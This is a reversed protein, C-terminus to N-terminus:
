AHRWELTYLLFYGLLLAIATYSAVRCIWLEWGGNYELEVECRGYCEPRLWMLGLGDSRIERKHGNVKAHWGPHYSVQVSIVQGPGASTAIRIRNRGQWQFEAIPLSSDDLAAVYAEMGATDGPRTPTRSVIAGQPVVHALSPTRQPVRYIAVDDERWLLPLVGEFKAPHAFPKWFEQSRPGSIAIAGAGYAKLWALSVRADLEPTDGGYYIAALGRQQIQSAAASWSGGGFQQVETFANAWQGISGPLMVRVGGLNHEVWTATRYEITRTVDAPVLLDKAYRRDKVIQEGALALILAVLATKLAPSGKEFWHRLGFVLLLSLALEMEFKYRKPQPLFQRHFYDLLIPVSSTLYAFLAFFQLRWDATWRPLYRWLIVWGVAIMAIATPTGMSWEGEVSNASAARIAKVLSPSLFPSAIAYAFAGILITLVINRKYDERRLVFLLCLAAMAAMSPGFASALTMLAISVAAAAYFIVRRKQISLSLFLIALPLFVLATVHPTEDWTVLMFLRRADWFSKFSFAGDPVLLQTPTTLSYVLGAVFSYGPARTMLWAMLFLTVPAMCYALATVCQFALAHPIGRLAAWAATLGPVLPMYTFEFPIGCDWYPWWTPYFWSSGARKALAIWFGHMSNMRATPNIWLDRCVYANIWLLALAYTAACLLEWRSFSKDTSM